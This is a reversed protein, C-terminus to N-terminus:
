DNSIIEVAVRLGFYETDAVTITELGRTELYRFSSGRLAARLDSALSELVTLGDSVTARPVALVIDFSWRISFGATGSFSAPAQYPDAPVVVVAPTAVIDAPSEYVNATSAFATELIDVLDTRASM